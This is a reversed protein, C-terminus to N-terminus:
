DNIGVQEKVVTIDTNLRCSGFWWTYAPITFEEGSPCKFVADTCGSESETRIVSAFVSKTLIVSLILYM